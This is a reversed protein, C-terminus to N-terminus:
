LFPVAVCSVLSVVHAHMPLRSELHVTAAALLALQRQVTRQSYHCALSYTNWLRVPCCRMACSVISWKDWNCLQVFFSPEDEQVLM